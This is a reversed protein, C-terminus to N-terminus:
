HAGLREVGPRAAAAKSFAAAVDAKGDVLLADAVRWPDPADRAALAGLAAPDGAKAVAARAAETAPDADDEALGHSRSAALTAAVVLALAARRATPPRSARSRPMPPM